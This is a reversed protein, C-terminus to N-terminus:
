LLIDVPLMNENGNIQFTNEILKLLTSIRM